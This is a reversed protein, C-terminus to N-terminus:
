SQTTSATRIRVLEEKLYTPIDIRQRIISTHLEDLDTPTLSKFLKRLQTRLEQQILKGVPDTVSNQRTDSNDINETKSHDTKM